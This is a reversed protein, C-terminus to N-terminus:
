GASTASDVTVWPDSAGVAPNRSSCMRRPNRGEDLEGWIRAVGAPRDGPQREVAGQRRRLRQGTDPVGEAVVVILLPLVQDTRRVPRNAPAFM